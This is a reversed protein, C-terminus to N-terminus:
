AKLFNVLEALVAEHEDHPTWHTANPLLHLRASHCLAQSAKALEVGAFEDRAGWLVLTPTPISQPAPVPLDQLFLARYWNLMAKLAGPQAWAATYEAMVEKSFTEPKTATAFAKSLANFNGAALLLEPLLPLRMFRVYSSKKRQVPDESMAQRWIAPHPANITVMRELHGAHRTATWWAVSAGWDHGVLRFRSHGYAQALGVVDDALTDLRYAMAGKPKGSLNYGRQDPVIVRYGQQALPGIYSRWGFWFEPFGHLLILLPGDAPGAEAIHLKVGNIDRYSFSIQHM